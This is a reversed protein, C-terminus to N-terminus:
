WRKSRRFVNSRYNIVQKEETGLPSTKYGMENKNSIRSVPLERCDFQDPVVDNGNENDPDENGHDAPPPTQGHVALANAAFFETLNTRRAKESTLVEKLDTGERFTVIQQDPLHVQLRTISPSHHHLPFTFLRWAGEPAGIYRGEIHEKIEDVPQADGDGDGSQITANARDGGKHVYKYIYRYSKVSSCVEVNIHAQYRLILYENFAVVSRNDLLVRKVLVQRSNTSYELHFKGEMTKENTHPIAM